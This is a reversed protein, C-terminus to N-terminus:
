PSVWARAGTSGHPPPTQRNFPISSNKGTYGPLHRNGYGWPGYRPAKGHRRVRKGAHPLARNRGIRYVEGCQGGPQSPGSPVARPDGKVFAPVDDGIRCLIEVTKGELKPRVLDCLDYSLLEPDFDIEELTLQGAEIKSLDLIDNILALLTDSSKAITRAYETQEENLSTDLLMNAFGIVGNMPTRIEHSM